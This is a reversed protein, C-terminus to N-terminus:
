HLLKGYYNKMASIIEEKSLGHYLLRELKSNLKTEYQVEDAKDKDDNYIVNSDIIVSYCVFFLGREHAKFSNNPITDLLEFVKSVSDKIVENYQPITGGINIELKNERKNINFQWFCKHGARNMTKCLRDYDYPKYIEPSNAIKLHYLEINLSSCFPCVHPNDHKWEMIKQILEYETFSKLEDEDSTIYYFANTIGTSKLCDRCNTSYYIVQHSKYGITTDTNEQIMIENAIFFIAGLEKM